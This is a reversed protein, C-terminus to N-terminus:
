LCLSLKVTVNLLSFSNDVVYDYISGDIMSRLDNLDKFDKRMPLFYKVRSSYESQHMFKRLEVKGADDILPNDFCLIVGMDTLKLLKSIMDDDFHAGLVSVGQNNEVMWADIIGETVVIYKSRDFKDINMIISSKDVVPNLYKPEIQKTIARGQFYVMKGDVYIPIIFRGKYRGKYAVFCENPIERRDIFNILANIYRNHIRDETVTNVTFCDNEIDINLNNQTVPEVSASTARSTTLRRKIEETDYILQDIHNKSEGFTVGKVESYLSYLNGSRFQCGGNYCTCVWDNHKDYWDVHLRQMRLNKKSDGCVPCRAKYGGNRKPSVLDCIDLLVEYVRNSDLM